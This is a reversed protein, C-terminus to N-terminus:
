CLQGARADFRDFNPFKKVTIEDTVKFGFQFDTPVQSVPGHPYKQDPFKYYAGDVCVPKFVEGYEALCDRKFGSEVLKGGDEFRAPRTLRGSGGRM